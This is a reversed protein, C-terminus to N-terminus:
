PYHLHANFITTNVEQSIKYSFCTTHIYIIITYTYIYLRFFFTCSFSTNMRSQGHNKSFTFWFDEGLHYAKINKKMGHFGLGYFIVSFFCLDLYYSPIKSVRIAGNM